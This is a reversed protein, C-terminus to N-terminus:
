SLGIREATCSVLQCIPCPKAVKRQYPPWVQAKCENMSYALQEVSKAPISSACKMTWPMPEWGIKVQTGRQLRSGYITGMM